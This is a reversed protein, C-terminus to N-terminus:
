EVEKPFESGFQGDLDLNKLHLQNAYADQKKQYMFAFGMGLKRM